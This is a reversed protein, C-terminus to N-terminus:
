WRPSVHKEILEILVHENVPFTQVPKRSILHLLYISEL